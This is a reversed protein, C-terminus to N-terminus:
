RRVLRVQFPGSCRCKAVFVDHGGDRCIPGNGKPVESKHSCKRRLFTLSSFTMKSNWFGEEGRGEFVHHVFFRRPYNM